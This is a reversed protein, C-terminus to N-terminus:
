IISNYCKTLEQKLKEIGIIVDAKSKFIVTKSKDMVADSIENMLFESVECYEIQMNGFMLQVDKEILQMGDEDVIDYGEFGNNRSYVMGYTLKDIWSTICKKIKDKDLITKINIIIDRQNADSRLFERLEILEETSMKELNEKKVFENISKTENM